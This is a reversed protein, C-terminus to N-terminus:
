KVAETFFSTIFLIVYHVTWTSVRAIHVYISECHANMIIYAAKSAVGWEGQKYGTMGAWTCKNGNHKKLTCKVAKIFFVAVFPKGASM